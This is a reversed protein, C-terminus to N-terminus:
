FCLKGHFRFPKIMFALLTKEFYILLEECRDWAGHHLQHGEGTGPPVQLM